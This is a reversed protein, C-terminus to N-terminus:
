FSGAEKRSGRFGFRSSYIDVIDEGGGGVVSNVERGPFILYFNGFVSIKRPGFFYFDLWFKDIM